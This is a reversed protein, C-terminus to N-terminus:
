FITIKPHFAAANIHKLNLNELINHATRKKVGYLQDSSSNKYISSIFKKKTKNNHLNNVFLNLFLLM